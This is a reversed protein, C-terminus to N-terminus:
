DYPDWEVGNGFLDSNIVEDTVTLDYCRCSVATMLICLLLIHRKM